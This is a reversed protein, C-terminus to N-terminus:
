HFEVILLDAQEDNTVDVYDLDGPAIVGGILVGCEMKRSFPTTSRIHAIGKAEDCLLLDFSGVVHRPGRVVSEFGGSSTQFRLFDAGRKILSKGPGHHYWGQMMEIGVKVLIADPNRYSRLVQRELENWRSLPYWKGMELNDILHHAEKGAVINLNKCAQAYGMMLASFVYMEDIPAIADM